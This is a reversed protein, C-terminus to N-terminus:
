VTLARGLARLRTGRRGRHAGAGPNRRPLSSSPWLTCAVKRHASPTASKRLAAPRRFGKTQSPAVQKEERLAATPPTARHRRTLACRAPSRVQNTNLLRLGTRHSRLPEQTRIHQRSRLSGSRITRVSKSRLSVPSKAPTATKTKLAGRHEHKVPRTPRPSGPVSGKVPTECPSPQTSKEGLTAISPKRDERSRHHTPRSKSHRQM